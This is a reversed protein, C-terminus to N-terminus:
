FQPPAYSASTDYDPAPPPTYAVAATRSRTPAAVLASASVLAVLACGFAAVLGLRPEAGVGVGDPVDVLRWAVVGAAAVAALRALGRCTQALPPALSLVALVMVAGALGSLVLDTRAFADWGSTGGSDAGLARMVADVGSQIRATLQEAEPVTGDTSPPTGYWSRRLSAVLGAAAAVLLLLHARTGLTRMISSPMPVFGTPSVRTQVGNTARRRCERRWLAPRGKVVRGFNMSHSVTQCEARDLALLLFM